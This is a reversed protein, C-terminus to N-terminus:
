ARLGLRRQRAVSSRALSEIRSPRKLLRRPATEFRTSRRAPLTSEIPACFHRPEASPSSSSPRASPPMPGEAAPVPEMGMAIVTPRATSSGAHVVRNRGDQKARYLAEDARKLLASRRSGDEPAIAIGISVTLHGTLGPALPIITSETRERIREAVEGVAATSLGALSLAFEECGYRAPIDEDRVCSRLIDGRRRRVV